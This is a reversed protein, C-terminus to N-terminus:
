KGSKSIQKQGFLCLNTQNNNKLISLIDGKQMTRSTIVSGCFTSVGLDNFVKLTFDKDMSVASKHACINDCDLIFPHTHFDIIDYSM